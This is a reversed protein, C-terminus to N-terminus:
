PWPVSSISTQLGWTALVSHPLTSTTLHCIVSCSSCSEALAPTTQSFKRGWSVPTIESLQLGPHTLILTFVNSNLEQQSHANTSKPDPKSAEGRGRLKSAHGRPASARRINGCPMSRPHKRAQAGPMRGPLTDKAASAATARRLRWHRWTPPSGQQLSLEQPYEM